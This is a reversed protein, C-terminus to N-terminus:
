DMIITMFVSVEMVMRTDPNYLFEVEYEPQIVKDQKTAKYKIFNWKIGQNEFGTKEETLPGFLEIIQDITFQKVCVAFDYSNLYNSLEDNFSYFNVEKHKRWNKSLYQRLDPCTKDAWIKSDDVTKITYVKKQSSCGITILLLFLLTKM